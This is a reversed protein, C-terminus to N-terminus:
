DPAAVAAPPSDKRVWRARLWRLSPREVGYTMATALLISTGAAFLAAITPRMGHEELWHIVSFGIAQHLLYLSYSIGGVFVFPKATLWRLRGGISLAFIASCVVAVAIYVDSHTFAVQLVCLAILWANWRLDGVRAHIRYMLIGIGFFPLHAVIALQFLRSSTDAGGQEILVVLVGLLLWGLIIWGISRLHGTMYWFLMQVYFFLEVQLTWYVGDLHRAGLFEQIMTLDVIVDRLPVKQVDAGISYVFVASVLISAWYAPFLRAFRSKVFDGASPCRELTMFIVFGSILFFLQVGYNGFALSVPPASNAGFVEGVRTTYHYGVVSLAALGRLSDIELLRPRESSSPSM